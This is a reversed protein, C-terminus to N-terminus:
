VLHLVAGSLAALLGVFAVVSAVYAQTTSYTGVSIWFVVGGTCALGVLLLFMGFVGTLNGSQPRTRVM